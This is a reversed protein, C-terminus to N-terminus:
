IAGILLTSMPDLKGSGNQVLMRFSDNLRRNWRYYRANYDRRQQWCNSVPSSDRGDDNGTSALERRSLTRLRNCYLGIMQLVVYVLSFYYILFHLGRDITNDQDDCPVDVMSRKGMRENM